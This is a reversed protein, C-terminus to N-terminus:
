ILTGQITDSIAESIVLGYASELSMDPKLGLSYLVKLPLNTADPSCLKRSRISPLLRGLPFYIHTVGQKRSSNVVYKFTSYKILTSNILVAVTLKSFKHSIVLAAM